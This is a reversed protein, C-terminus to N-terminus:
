IGAGDDFSESKKSFYDKLYAKNKKNINRGIQIKRDPDDDLSDFFTRLATTGGRAGADKTNTVLKEFDISGFDSTSLDALEKQLEAYKGTKDKNNVKYALVLDRGKKKTKDNINDIASQDKAAELAKIAHEYNKYNGKFGNKEALELAAARSKIKDSGKLLEELEDDSPVGTKKWNDRIENAMKRANENVAGKVKYPTREAWNAERTAVVDSGFFRGTKQWRAWKQQVGGTVGAKKSIWKTAPVAGGLNRGASKLFKSAYGTVAGAGAVGMSNAIMMGMWLIIIPVTFMAMDQLLQGLMSGDKVVIPLATTAQMVTMAVYIMFVMIPGFFAYHFLHGWWASAKSGIEGPIITGTFALPSFIILIALAVIRVVFLVAMVLFTVGLIFMFVIAAILQSASASTGQSIIGQLSSAKAFFGAINSANGGDFSLSNLLTYMLVNSVDIIFRSIPFSFNVLLAMLVLNLLTSKYNFKKVQFITCFASFLLIMIFAMNLFDRVTKWATYIGNNSIVSKLIDPNIAWKLIDAPFRVLWSVFEAVALLPCIFPNWLMSCSSPKNKEAQASQEARYAATGAPAPQGLVRGGFTMAAAARMPGVSNESNSLNINISLMSLFLFVTAFIALFFKLGVGFYKKHLNLCSFVIGSNRPNVSIIEKNNKETAQM